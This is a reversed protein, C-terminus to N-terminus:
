VINYVQIASCQYEKTIFGIVLDTRHNQHEAMAHTTSWSKGSRQETPEKDREETETRTEAQDVVPSKQWDEFVNEYPATERFTEKTARLHRLNQEQATNKWGGDKSPILSLAIERGSKSKDM